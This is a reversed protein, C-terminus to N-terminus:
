FIRRTIRGCNNRIQRVILSESGVRMKFKVNAPLTIEDGRFSIEVRLRILGANLVFQGKEALLVLNIFYQAFTLHYKLFIKNNLKKKQAAVIAFKLIIAM